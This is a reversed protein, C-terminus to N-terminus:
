YRHFIFHSNQLPSSSSYSLETNCYYHNQIMGMDVAIHLNPILQRIEQLIARYLIESLICFYSSSHEQFTPSFLTPSFDDLLMGVFAFM